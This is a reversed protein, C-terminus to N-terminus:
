IINVHKAISVAQTRNKAKLSKLINAIHVKVTGTAIDLERAIVKNPKGESLLDLVELQRSSLLTNADVTLHSEVLPAGEQQNEAGFFSEAPFYRGGALVIQFVANLIEQKSLKKVFAGIGLDYAQKVLAVNTSFSLLVTKERFAPDKIKKITEFSNNDFCDADIVILDLSNNSIHKAGLEITTAEVFESESDLQLIINKMGVRCIDYQDIILVQM